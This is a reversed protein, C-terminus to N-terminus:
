IEDVKCSGFDIPHWTYSQDGFYLFQIGSSQFLLLQNNTSQVLWGCTSFSKAKPDSNVSSLIKVYTYPPKKISESVIPAKILPAINSTDSSAKPNKVTAFANIAYSNETAFREKGARYETLIFWSIALYTVFIIVLSFVGLIGFAIFQIKKSSSKKTGKKAIRKRGRWGLILHASRSQLPDGAIRGTRIGRTLNAFRKRLKLQSLNEGRDIRNKIPKLLEEIYETASMQFTIWIILASIAAVFYFWRDIALFGIFIIDQAPWNFSLQPIGAAEHWGLIQARGIAYCASTLLGITIAIIPLFAENLSFKQKEQKDNISVTSPNGSASASISM